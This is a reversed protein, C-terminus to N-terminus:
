LGARDRNVRKGDRLHDWTDVKKDGNTDREVRVVEGDQYYQFRDMIGDANSDVELKVLNGGDDLYAIQDVKGDDNTDRRIGEETAFAPGLGCATTLIALVLFSIFPKM